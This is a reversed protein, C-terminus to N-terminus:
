IRERIKKKNERTRKGVMHKRKKNNQPQQKHLLGMTGLAFAENVQLSRAPIKSLIGCASGGREPLQLVVPLENTEQCGSVDFDGAFQEQQRYGLVDALGNDLAVGAPQFVVNQLGCGQQIESNRSFGCILLQFGSGAPVTEPM